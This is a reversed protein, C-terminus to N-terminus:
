KNLTEVIWYNNIPEFVVNVIAEDKFICGHFVGDDAEQTYFIMYCQGYSWKTEKIEYVFSIFPKQSLFKKRKLMMRLRVIINQVRM